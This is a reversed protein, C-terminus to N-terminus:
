VITIDGRRPVALRIGFHGEDHQNTRWGGQIRARCQASEVGASRLADGIRQNQDRAIYGVKFGEVSVSVANPDYKNSPELAIVATVDLDHGERSHRGCIAVFANQYNSEGVVEMPYSAGDWRVTGTRPRPTLREETYPPAPSAVVPAPAKGFLWSLWGM